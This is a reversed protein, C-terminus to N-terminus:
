LWQRDVMTCCCVVDGYLVGFIGTLSIGASKVEQPMLGLVEMLGYLVFVGTYIIGYEDMLGEFTLTCYQSTLTYNNSHLLAHLYICVASLQM